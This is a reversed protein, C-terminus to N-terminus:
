WHELTSSHLKQHLFTSPLSPLKAPKYGACFVDEYTSPHQFLINEKKCTNNLGSSNPSRSHIEFIFIWLKQFFKKSRDFSLTAM